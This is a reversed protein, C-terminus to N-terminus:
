VLFHAGILFGGDLKGGREAHSVRKDALEPLARVADDAGGVVLLLVNVNCDFFDVVDKLFGDKCFAGQAFDLEELVKGAM